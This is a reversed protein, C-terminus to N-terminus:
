GDLATAAVLLDSGLLRRARSQLRPGLFGSLLHSETVLFDVRFGDADLHDGISAPGFYVLHERKFSHYDDGFVRLELAAISPTRLVLIGGPRLVAKAAKLMSSPDSTHELCDWMTVVSAMGALRAAAEELTGVISDFGFLERAARAAHESVEVGEHRWGREGVSHRFYGYGSGVDVVVADDGLTVGILDAIADVHRVQRAAKELRWGGQALYNGYGVGPADGVFYEEDYEVPPTLVRELTDRDALWAFHDDGVVSFRPDDRVHAAYLRRGDPLARSEKPLETGGTARWADGLVRALTDDDLAYAPSGLGALREGVAEVWRRARADDVALLRMVANEWHDLTDAFVPLSGVTYRIAGDDREWSM